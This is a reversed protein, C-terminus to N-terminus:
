AAAAGPAGAVPQPLAEWRGAGDSVGAEPVEAGALETAGVQEAAPRLDDTQPGIPARQYVARCRSLDLGLHTAEVDTFTTPVTVGPAGPVERDVTRQRIRGHVMVPQGKALSAAANEAARRWATVNWFTTDGDVWRGSARDYRTSTSAMRFRALSDGRATTRLEVDTVLNGSVTITTDNM